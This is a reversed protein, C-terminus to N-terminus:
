KQSELCAGMINNSAFKVVEKKTKIKAINM